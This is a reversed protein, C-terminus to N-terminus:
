NLCSTLIRTPKSRNITTNLKFNCTICTQIHLVSYFKALTGGLVRTVPTPGCSGIYWCLFQLLSTENSKGPFFQFHSHSHLRICAEFCSRTLWPHLWSAIVLNRYFCYTLNIRAFTPSRWAAAILSRGKDIFLLCHRIMAAKQNESSLSIAPIQAWPNTRGFFPLLRVFSSSSFSLSLYSNLVHGLSVFM